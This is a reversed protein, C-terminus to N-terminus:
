AARFALLYSNAKITTSTGGSTVQAWRLKVTGATTSNVVNFHVSAIGFTGAGAAGFTEVHSDTLGNAATIDMTTAAMASSSAAEGIAGWFGTASAPVNLAVQLGSATGGDYFLVMQGFWIENAAISFFLHTDDVLATSSTVAQDATKRVHMIPLIANLNDRVHTNMITEDVLEDHVWTRPTTWAM